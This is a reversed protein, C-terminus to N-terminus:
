VRVGDVEKGAPVKAAEREATSLQLGQANWGDVGNKYLEKQKQRDAMTGQKGRRERSELTEVLSANDSDLKEDELDDLDIKDSYTYTRYETNVWGTGQFQSSDEWDETFYHLVGGHSVMAIEKEPRSKLWRRATRARGGVAANTPAYRGTKVNWGDTVFSADVPLGKEEIEKRLVEPDSGTDCPVDSTEQIDPLLILKMNPNAKFVPEFSQLATYMTRRLPSAVVLDIQDHRPFSDRLKQCQEIGLDTLPPDPIVHNETCLNHVGQAHRVCHIIPAM